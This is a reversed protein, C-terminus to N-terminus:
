DLGLQAKATLKGNSFTANMNSPFAEGPWSLM